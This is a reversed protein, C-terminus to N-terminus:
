QAWCRTDFRTGHGLKSRVSIRGKHLDILQRVLSLGLGVGKHECIDWHEM